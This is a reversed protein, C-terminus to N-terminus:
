LKPGELGRSVLRVRDAIGRGGCVPCFCGITKPDSSLGDREYALEFCGSLVGVILPVIRDGCCTPCNGTM